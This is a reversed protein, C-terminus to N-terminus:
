FSSFTYEFLDSRYFSETCQVPTINDVFRISVSKLLAKSKVQLLDIQKDNGEIAKLKTLFGSIRIGKGEMYKDFSGNLAELDIDGIYKCPTYSYQLAIPVDNGTRLRVIYYIKENEELHLQNMAVPYEGANAVKFELLRSGPVMGISKMDETFSMKNAINRNVPKGSVFSGRGPTREIIGQNALDRLCNHVTQRGFGFKEVLEHEAPIQDGARLHGKRIEELIYNEIIQRKSPHKEM